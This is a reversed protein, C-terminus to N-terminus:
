RSGYHMTIAFGSKPVYVAERNPKPPRGSTAHKRHCVCALGDAYATATPGPRRLVGETRPRQLVRVESRSTTLWSSQGDSSLARSVGGLLVAGVQRLSSRCPSPASSPHKRAHRRSGRRLFSRRRPLSRRVLSPIVSSLSTTTPM